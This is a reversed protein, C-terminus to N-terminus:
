SNSVETHEAEQLSSCGALGQLAEVLTPQHVPVDLRVVEAHWIAVVDVTSVSGAVDVQQVHAHGHLPVVCTHATRSIRMDQMTHFLQLLHVDFLLLPVACQIPYACTSHTHVLFACGGAHVATLLQQGPLLLTSM